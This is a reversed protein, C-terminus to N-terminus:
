KMLRPESPANSDLSCLLDSDLINAAICILVWYTTHVLESIHVESAASIRIATSSAPAPFFTYAMAAPIESPNPKSFLVRAPIHHMSVKTTTEDDLGKM